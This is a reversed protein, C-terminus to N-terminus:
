EQEQQEPSLSPHSLLVAVLHAADQCATTASGRAIDPRSSLMCAQAIRAEINELKEVLEEKLLQATDPTRTNWAAIADAETQFPGLRIFGTNCAHFLDWAYPKPNNGQHPQAYAPRECLFPCPKLETEKSQDPM